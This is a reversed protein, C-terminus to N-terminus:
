TTEPDILVPNIAEVDIAARRGTLLRMLLFPLMRRAKNEQKIAQNGVALQSLVTAANDPTDGIIPMVMKLAKLFREEGGRLFRPRNTLGTLILGPNFTGIEINNSKEEQATALTFNRVWAKASSYLNANAQVSKEGRGTINILRGFGQKRFQRIAVISGHYTGMINTNVVLRGFKVPVSATAGSPATTGANNIWCAVGGFHSLAHNLLGEVQDIDTVDCLLGSVREGYSELAQLTKGLDEESESSVVVNAGAALCKEATQRGLGSTSGTIVVTKLM